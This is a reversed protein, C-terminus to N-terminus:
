HQLPRQQHHPHPWLRWFAHLCCWRLKIAVQRFHFIYVAIQTWCLGADQMVQWCGQVLLAWSFWDFSQYWVHEIYFWRWYELMFSPIHKSHQYQLIKLVQHKSITTCLKLIPMKENRPAEIYFYDTNLIRLLNKLIWILNYQARCYYQARCWLENVSSWNWFKM